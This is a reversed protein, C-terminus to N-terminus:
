ASSKNEKQIMAGGDTTQNDASNNEVNTGFKSSTAHTIVEVKPEESRGQRQQWFDLAIPLPDIDLDSWWRAEDGAHHLQRHHTRCLPVVFEDSVKRSMARPQAFRLHHPDSPTRGCLLCPQAAVFALHGKDRTRRPHAILFATEEALTARIDARNTESSVESNKTGDDAPSTTVASSKEDPNQTVTTADAVSSADLKGKTAAESALIAHFSNSTPQGRPPVYYRGNASLRQLTRRREHDPAGTVADRPSGNSSSAATVPLRTPGRREPETREGKPLLARGKLYLSLGFPKGFTALARKTADTEASKIAKDHADGPNSGQSERDWGDFGFIRNAEAIAHWGEIYTLVRGNEVQRTRLKRRDVDRRLARLQSASFAM